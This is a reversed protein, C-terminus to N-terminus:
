HLGPGLDDLILTKGDYHAFIRWASQDAWADCECTSPPRPNGELDKFDLRKPNTGDRLFRALDDLRENLQIMRDAALEAASKKFKETFRVEALPPEQLGAAYIAKRCREWILKGWPSLEAQDDLVYFFAEPVGERESVACTAWSTALRRFLSFYREVTKRAGDDIAVPIRPIRLLEGGSEFIYVIEDAYFMGLTQMWGQISKFGGTLNFAIHYQHKRYAPLTDECWKIMLSLGRQFNELRDARLEAFTERSVTLGHSRLFEEAIKALEDGQYTDTHLLVHHDQGRGHLQEGYYGLLGNLEASSKRAESLTSNLLQDRCIPLLSDIASKQAPTLDEKRSNASKRVLDFVSTGAKGAESTLLSTGCTSVMLLPRQQIM